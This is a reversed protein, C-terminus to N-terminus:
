RQSVRFPDPRSATKRRFLEADRSDLAIFNLKKGGGIHLYGQIGSGIYLVLIAGDPRDVLKDGGHDAVPV